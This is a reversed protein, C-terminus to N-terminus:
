QSSTYSLMGNESTTKSSKARFFCEFFPVVVDSTNFFTKSSKASYFFEHLHDCDGSTTKFFNDEFEQVFLFVRRLNTRCGMTEQLLTRRVRNALQIFFVAFFTYSVDGSHRLIAEFRASFFVAFFHYRFM